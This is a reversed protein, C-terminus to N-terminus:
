TETSTFSINMTKLIDPTIVCLTGNDIVVNTNCSAHEIEKSILRATTQGGTSMLVLPKENYAFLKENIYRSAANDVQKIISVSNLKINLKTKNNILSNADRTLQMLNPAAYDGMGSQNMFDSLLDGQSTIADHKWHINVVGSSENM